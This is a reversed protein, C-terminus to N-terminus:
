PIGLRVKADPWINAYKTEDISQRNLHGRSRMMRALEKQVEDLYYWHQGENFAFSQVLDEAPPSDWEIERWLQAIVNVYRLPVPANLSSQLVAAIIEARTPENVDEDNAVRDLLDVWHPYWLVEYPRVPSEYPSMLLFSGWLKKKAHPYQKMKAIILEDAKEVQNWPFGEIIESLKTIDM